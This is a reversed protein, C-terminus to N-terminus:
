PSPSCVVYRGGCEEDGPDASSKFYQKNKGFWASISPVRLGKVDSTSQQPLVASLNSSSLNSASIGGGRGLFRLCSGFVSIIVNLWVGASNSNSKTVKRRTNVYAEVDIGLYKGFLTVFIISLDNMAYYCGAFMVLVLLILWALNSSISQKTQKRKIRSNMEDMRKKRKERNIEQRKKRAERQMKQREVEKRTMESVNDRSETGSDIANLDTRSGAKTLGVCFLLLIFIYIARM